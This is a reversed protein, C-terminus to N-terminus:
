GLRYTYNARAGFMTLASTAAADMTMQVQVVMDDEVWLPTTLTLTMSHQELTLREPATDHGTDYTFALSTPAGIAATDAPLTVQHILATVADMAATLVEWYVDVSILRAGKDPGDNMPIVIPITVIATNDAAGKSIAITNAVAGAAMTWTGTVCHFLTPPIWQHEHTDHM